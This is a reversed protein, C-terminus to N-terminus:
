EEYVGCVLGEAGMLDGRKGSQLDFVTCTVCDKTLKSSGCLGRGCLRLGAQREVQLSRV